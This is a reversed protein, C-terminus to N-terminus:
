RGRKTPPNPTFNFYWRPAHTFEMVGMTGDAKRRVSVFPALFGIAEYQERFQDSNVLDTADAPPEPQGYDHVPM